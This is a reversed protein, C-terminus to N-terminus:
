SDAEVRAVAERKRLEAGTADARLGVIARALVAPTLRAAHRELVRAKATIFDPRRWGEEGLAQGNADRFMRYECTVRPVYHFTALAALRILMEWDEFIDFSVDFPGAEALLAREILLTNLPIYNDVLLRDVDFDRAYPTDRRVCTWGADGDLAYVAVAAISYVVRSHAARMADVLTALHEPAVIDDDDLFAILTGRAADVGAQAAAARGRPETHDVRILPFPYDGPVTSPAGGDNVLVVEVHRYTSAALSALADALFRPRDRTRVVVSVLPGAEVPSLTRERTHGDVLAVLQAFSRTALDWGSLRRYAEAHTVDPGLTLTRFRRLGIAAALYDHRAQQSAYCHMAATVTPIQPSVDVLLDPHSAHNVEYLLIDLGRIVDEHGARLAHMADHVAACAARHDASIELPSPALLLDPATARIRVAIAESARAVHVPSALASDPLDVHLCETVGLLRAAHESEERRRRSYAAGDAFTIEGGAADHTADGPAGAGDTLFM